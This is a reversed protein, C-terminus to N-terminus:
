PASTLNLFTNVTLRGLYPDASFSMDPPIDACHLTFGRYILLRNFRGPYHAIQEYLATDGSIYDAQPVGHQELDAKLSQSFDALRQSDVTEFGTTRHRFFSTGGREDRSLFHLAALRNREVGDYHPLRQILALQERRTTVLSYYAEFASLDPAAGFVDEILDRYPALGARIVAAPAHARIGPYHPGIPQFSMLEADAVVGQPDPAFGDIVIVPQQEVGHKMVQVTAHAPPPIATSWSLDAVSCQKAGVGRYICFLGALVIGRAAFLKHM